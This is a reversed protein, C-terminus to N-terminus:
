SDDSDQKKPRKSELYLNFGYLLAALLVAGVFGVQIAVMTVIFLLILKGITNDDM